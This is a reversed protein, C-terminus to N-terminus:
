KERSDIEERIKKISSYNILLIPLFCVPLITFVGFGKQTTLYIGAVLQVVIVGFLVGTAVKGTKERKLLEETSYQSYDEKKM